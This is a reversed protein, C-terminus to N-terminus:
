GRQRQAPRPTTGLPHVGFELALVVSLRTRIPHPISTQQAIPTALFTPCPVASQNPLVRLVLLQTSVFEAHLADAFRASRARAVLRFHALERIPRAAM